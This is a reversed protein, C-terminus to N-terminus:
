DGLTINLSEEDTDIRINEPYYMGGIEKRKGLVAAAIRSAIETDVYNIVSRAGFERQYGNEAIFKGAEETLEIKLQKAGPSSSFSREYAALKSRVISDVHRIELYSFPIIEDVRKVFEPGIHKKLLDVARDVLKDEAIEMTDSFGSYGHNSTLVFVTNSFDITNGQSDTLRGEDFVQLFYQLVQRHAKDIEDLLVLSYPRRRVAETLVGGEEYGVLGPDAGVLRKASHGDSFESMDIRVLQKPSAYVESAISKAMETKGVGSPGVFLFVGRPKSSDRFPLSMMRMRDAIVKIAKDQGVVNRGLISELELLRESEDRFIKDVPIDTKDGVAEAIDIDTVTLDDREGVVQAVRVRALTNDLVQIAKAPFQNDGIYKGSLSVITRLQEDAIVANEHHAAFRQRVGQLIEFTEDATSEPVNIKLFRRSFAPDKEIHRRYEAYTTAGIVWLEGRALPPKILNAADLAGSTQGAGMLVHIEDIFLIVQGKAEALKNIIKKLREEFEGRYTAGALLSGVDLTLIKKGSLIPGAEDKFIKMALGEVIQTKGVGPDGILIPNNTMKQSLVTTIQRIEKTRGIVPTLNGDEAMKVLDITFKELAEDESVSSLDSTGSAVAAVKKEGELFNRYDYPTIAADWILEALETDDTEIVALVLDPWQIDKDGDSVKDFLAKLRESAERTGAAAKQPLEKMQKNLLGQLNAKSLKKGELFEILRADGAQLETWLIHEPEVKANRRSMAEAQAKLLNTKCSESFKM